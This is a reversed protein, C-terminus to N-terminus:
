ARVRRDLEAALLVHGLAHLMKDFPYHHLPAMNLYILSVLMRVKDVDLGHSRVYDDLIGLLAGSQYRQAFDFTARGGEEWYNLLNRKIYDYNVIIGGRMKALDYYLDGFQTHGAFDQRWDLLKFRGTVRDFLINDFQLDGHIFSAVGDELEDWPIQALLNQFPPMERGNIVTPYADGAYKQRYADLRKLTKEKYFVKCADRVVGPDTAVRKWVKQDLWSLLAQLIEPSNCEYLTEGPQFTYAYFGGAHDTITPFVDPNLAARAVRLSTIHPDTFYKIVKSGVTYFFEDSKSFNYDASKEVAKSYTEATGVDTWAIPQPRVECEAILARLGSSVQQEGAIIEGSELGKWFVPYEYIYCLGVFAQYAPDTVPVKDRLEGIRGVDVRLNCYRPADGVPVSAVGLWSYTGPAPLDKDWLTDCSVFYFPRELYPRCRWLSHGPGSGPGDYNDVQVIRFRRDPHAIALYQRVQDQLHGVAIVFETEIPFKEIIHSVIARNHLPLLAKNIQEAWSGM